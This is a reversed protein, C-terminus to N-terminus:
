NWLTGDLGLVTGLWLGIIYIILGLVIAVVKNISGKSSLHDLVAYCLGGAAGALPVIILPRIFWYKEWEPKAYDIPFLFWSILALAIGAGILMPKVFSAQQTNVDEKQTM